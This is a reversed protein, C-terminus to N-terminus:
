PPLPAFTTVAGFSFRRPWTIGTEDTVSGFQGVGRFEIVGLVSAGELLSAPIELLVAEARDGIVFRLSSSSLGVPVQRLGNLVAVAIQAREGPCPALDAYNTPANWRLAIPDGWNSPSVRYSGVDTLSVGEAFDLRMAEDVIPKEDAELSPVLSASRQAIAKIGTTTTEVLILTLMTVSQVRSVDISTESTFEREGSRAFEPGILFQEGDLFGLLRFESDDDGDDLVVCSGVTIQARELLLEHATAM